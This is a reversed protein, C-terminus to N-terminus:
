QHYAEKTLQNIVVLFQSVSFGWVLADDAGLRKASDKQDVSEALLLCRLRPWRQKIDDLLDLASVGPAHSDLIVLDPRMWFIKEVVEGDVGVNGLITLNEIKSLFNNLSEQLLGPEIVILVGSKKKMRKGKSLLLLALIIM